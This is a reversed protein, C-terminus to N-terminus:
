REERRRRPPEERDECTEGDDALRPFDLKCGFGERWKCDYCAPAYGACANNYMSM